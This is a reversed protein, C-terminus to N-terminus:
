AASACSAFQGRLHFLWAVTLCSSAGALARAWAPGAAAARIGGTTVTVVTHAPAGAGVRPQAAVSRCSVLKPPRLSGSPSALLAPQFRGRCVYHGSSGRDRRRPCSPERLGSRRRRVGGSCPVLRRLTPQWVHGCWPESHLGVSPRPRCRLGRCLHRRLQRGARARRLQRGGRRSGFRGRSRRPQRLLGGARRCPPLLHASTGVPPRSGAFEMAPAVAHPPSTAGVARAVEIIPVGAVIM